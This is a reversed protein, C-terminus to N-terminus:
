GGQRWAATSQCRTCVRNGAWESQFESKCILCKRTKAEHQVALDASNNEMKNKM